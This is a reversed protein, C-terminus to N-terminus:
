DEGSFLFAGLVGRVFTQGQSPVLAAIEELVTRRGDLIDTHHQAYYAAQVQHGLTITGADAELEGAVLKLLTTKGAGNVGVIAVREGRQVTGSVSRYVVKDGFSKAVGELRIVDRGSRAVEPFRFRVTSRSQRVQVTEERELRRIRSQVAKAKTNKARFR